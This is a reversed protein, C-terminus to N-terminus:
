SKRNRGLILGGFGMALLSLAGPEPANILQATGLDTILGGAGDDIGDTATYLGFINANGSVAEKHFVISGLRRDGLVPGFPNLGNINLVQTGTDAPSGLANAYAGDPNSTASVVTLKGTNGYDITIGGGTSGAGSDIVVVNLQVDVSTAVNSISNTGTTQWILGISNAGAAGAFGMLAALGSVTGVLLTRM